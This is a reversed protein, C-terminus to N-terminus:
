IETKIMKLDNWFEVAPRAKKGDLGRVRKVYGPDYTPIVKINGEWNYVKGRMDSINSEENLLVTVVEPGLAVIIKPKILAIQMDLYEKMVKKEEESLERWKLICKSINTIYYKEPSLDALDCLKIFFEGSTGPLVRMNEDEFLDPDDGIFLIDGKTNGGGLLLKRDKVGDLKPMKMGGLDFKLEEWLERIELKM